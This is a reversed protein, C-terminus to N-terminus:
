EEEFEADIASLDETGGGWCSTYSGAPSVKHTVEGEHRVEGSVKINKTVPRGFFAAASELTERWEKVIRAHGSYNVSRSSEQLLRTQYEIGLRYAEAIQDIDAEPNVQSKAERTEAMIKLVTNVHLTCANYALYQYEYQPKAGGSKVLPNDPHRYYSDELLKMVRAPTLPVGESALSIIAWIEPGTAALSTEAVHALTTERTMEESIIPLKKTM